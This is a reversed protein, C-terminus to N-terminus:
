ESMFCQKIYKMKFLNVENDQATNVEDYRSEAIARQTATRANILNSLARMSDYRPREFAAIVMGKDSYEKMAAFLDDKNQRYEMVNKAYDGIEKCKQNTDAKVMLIFCISIILIITKM